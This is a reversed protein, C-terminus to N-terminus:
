SDNSCWLSLLNWFVGETKFSPTVCVVQINRHYPRINYIVFAFSTAPLCQAWRGRPLASFSSREAKPPGSTYPHACVALCSYETGGWWCDRLAFTCNVALGHLHRPFVKFAASIPAWLPQTAVAQSPFPIFCFPHTFMQSCFMVMTILAAFGDLCAQTLGYSSSHNPFVDAKQLDCFSWFPKCHLKRTTHTNTREAQSRKRREKKVTDKYLLPKQFNVTADFGWGWLESHSSHWSQSNIHFM